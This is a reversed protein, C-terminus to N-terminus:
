QIKKTEDDSDKKLHLGSNKLFFELFFQFGGCDNEIGPTPKDLKPLFADYSDTCRNLSYDTNWLTDMERLRYHKNKFSPRIDEFISCRDTAARRGYVLM